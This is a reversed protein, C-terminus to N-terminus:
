SFATEAIYFARETTNKVKTLLSIHHYWTIQALPVQVFQNQSKCTTQQYEHQRSPKKSLRRRHVSVARLLLITIVLIM